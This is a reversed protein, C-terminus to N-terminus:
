ANSVRLRDGAPKALEFLRYGITRVREDKSNMMSAVVAEGVRKMFAYVADNSPRQRIAEDFVICADDIRGDQYLEVAVDLLTLEKEPNPIATALLARGDSLNLTNDGRPTSFVAGKSTVSKLRWGSLEAVEGGTGPDRIPEGVYANVFLKRGALFLYATATKPDGAIGDIGILCVVDIPPIVVPEKLPNPLGALLDTDRVEVPPSVRPLLKPEEVMRNPSEHFVFAGIAFSAIGLILVLNGTWLLINARKANMM